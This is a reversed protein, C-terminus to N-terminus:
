NREGFDINVMSINMSKSGQTLEKEEHGKELEKIMIELLDWRNIGEEWPM